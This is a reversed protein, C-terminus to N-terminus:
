RILRELEEASKIEFGLQRAVFKNVKVSFYKPYTKEDPHKRCKDIICNVMEATQKGMQEPTSFIAMLAGAKVYSESYAILPRKFRVSSLLVGQATRRNYFYPDPLLLLAESDRLVPKLASVLKVKPSVFAEVLGLGKETAAARVAEAHVGSVDGFVLGLSKLKPLAQKVLRVYRDPPQDLYLTHQDFGVLKSNQELWAFSNQPLLTYVVHAKEIKKDALWKAAGVGAVVIADYEDLNITDSLNSVALVEVLGVSEKIETNLGVVFRQYLKDGGSSLVLLRAHAHSSFMLGVIFFTVLFSRIM